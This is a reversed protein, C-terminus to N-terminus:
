DVATDEAEPLAAGAETERRPRRHRGAVSGLKTNTSQSIRVLRDFAEEAGIGHREMVIGKAQGIVDRSALAEHLQDVESRLRDVEDHTGGAGM